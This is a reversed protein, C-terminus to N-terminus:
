KLHRRITALGPAGFKYKPIQNTVVSKNILDDGSDHQAELEERLKQILSLCGKKDLFLRLRKTAKRWCLKQTFEREAHRIKEAKVLSQFCENLAGILSPDVHYLNSDDLGKLWNLASTVDSKASALHKLIDDHKSKGSAFSKGTPTQPLTWILGLTLCCEYVEAFNIIKIESHHKLFKYTDDVVDQVRARYKLSLPETLHKVLEGIRANANQDIPMNPSNRGLTSM